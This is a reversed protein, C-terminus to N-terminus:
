VTIVKVGLEKIADRALPTIVVGKVTLTKKDMPRASM